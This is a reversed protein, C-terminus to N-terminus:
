VFSLIKLKAKDQNIKNIDSIHTYKGLLQIKQKTSKFEFDIKSLYAINPKFM